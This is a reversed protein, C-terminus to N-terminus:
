TWILFKVKCSSSELGLKYKKEGNTVSKIIAVRKNKLTKTFHARNKTAPLTMLYWLAEYYLPMVITKPLPKM